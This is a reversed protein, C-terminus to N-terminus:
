STREEQAEFDDRATFREIATAMAERAAQRTRALDVTGDIDALAGPALTRRGLLNTAMPGLALRHDAAM